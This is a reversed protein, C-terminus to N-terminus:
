NKVYFNWLGACVELTDDYKAFDRMRLRDSIIRYRKLGGICHEIVIRQSSLERNTQKQEENLPKKKRAKTPLYSMQCKYDKAFGQYGSDLRVEFNEFWNESPPFDEKLM